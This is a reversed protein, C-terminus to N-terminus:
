GRARTAGGTMGPGAGPFASGYDASESGYGRGETGYSSAETRYGGGGGIRGYDRPRTSTSGQPRSSKLFRAGLIGLAIASGIILAPRQRTFRELDSRMAQPDANRLYGAAQDARSALTDTFGAIRAQDETRLHETTRRLADAVTGIQDAFQMRSDNLSSTARDRAQQISSKAQGLVQDKVERIQERAGPGGAPDQSSSPTQISPTQVTM